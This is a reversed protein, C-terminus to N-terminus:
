IRVDEQHPIPTDCDVQNLCAIDEKYGDFNPRLDVVLEIRIKSTAEVRVCTYCKTACEVLFPKSSVIHLVGLLRHVLYFRTSHGKVM